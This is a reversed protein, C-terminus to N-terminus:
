APHGGQGPDEAECEAYVCVGLPRLGFTGLAAASHCRLVRYLPPRDRPPARVEITDSPEVDLTITKGTLTQWSCLLEM